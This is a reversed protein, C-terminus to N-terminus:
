WLNWITVTENVVGDAKGVLVFEIRDITDASGAIVAEGVGLKSGDGGQEVILGATNDINVRDVSFFHPDAISVLHVNFRWFAGDLHFGFNGLDDM